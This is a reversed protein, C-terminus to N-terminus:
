ERARVKEFASPLHIFYVKGKELVIIPRKEMLAEINIEYLGERPVRITEIGFKQRGQLKSAKKEAAKSMRPLQPEQSEQSEQPMEIEYSVEETASIEAPKKVTLQKALEEEFSTDKQHLEEEIKQLQKAEQESKMYLFFISGCNSCGRLINSDNDQYIKGCRLCKHSM